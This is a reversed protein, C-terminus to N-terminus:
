YISAAKTFSTELEMQYYGETSESDSLLTLTSVTMWYYVLM